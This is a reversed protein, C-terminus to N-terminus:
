DSQAELPDPGFRNEDPTGRLCYIWVFLVSWGVVPILSLLLWWASKERDHLRRFSLALSPTLLALYVLVSLPGFFLSVPENDPGTLVFSLGLAVDLVVAPVFALLCFLLAWWVQVRQSRGSFTVYNELYSQTAESFGM